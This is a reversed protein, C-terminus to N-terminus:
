DPLADFREDFRVTIRQEVPTTPGGQEYAHIHVSLGTRPVLMYTSTVDFNYPRLYAFIGFGNGHYRLRVTLQRRGGQLLLGEAVAFRREESPLEPEGRVLIRQRDLLLEVRTLRFATSVDDHLVISVRCTECDSVIPAPAPPSSSLPQCGIGMTTASLVFAFSWGGFSRM